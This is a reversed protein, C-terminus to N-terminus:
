QREWTLFRKWWSSPHITRLSHDCRALRHRFVPQFSYGVLRSKPSNLSTLRTESIGERRIERLWEHFRFAPFSCTGNSGVQVALGTKAKCFPPFASTQYFRALLATSFEEVHQCFYTSRVPSNLISVAHEGAVLADTGVGVDVQDLVHALLAAGLLADDGIEPALFDNDRAAIEVPQRARDGPQRLTRHHQRHNLAFGRGICHTPPDPRRQQELPQPLLDAAASYQFLQGGLPLELKGGLAGGEQRHEVPQEHRARVAGRFLPTGVVPDLASLPQLQM